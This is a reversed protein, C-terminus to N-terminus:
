RVAAGGYCGIAGTTPSREPRRSPRRVVLGACLGAPRSRAFSARETEDHVGYLTPLDTLDRRKFGTRGWSWGNIKYDSARIAEGADVGMIGCAEPLRRLQAGVLM